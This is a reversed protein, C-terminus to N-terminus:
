GGPWKWLLVGVRAFQPLLSDRCYPLQAKYKPLVEIIVCLEDVWSGLALVVRPPRNVGSLPILPKTLLKLVNCMQDVYSDDNDSRTFLLDFRCSSVEGHAFQLWPYMAGSVNVQNYKAREGFGDYEEPNWQFRVSPIDGEVPIIVGRTHRM